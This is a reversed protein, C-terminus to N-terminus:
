HYSVSPFTKVSVDVDLISITCAPDLELIRSILHHGYFGCGGTVLVSGFNKNSEM